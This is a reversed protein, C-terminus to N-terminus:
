LILCAALFTCVFGILVPALNKRALEIPSINCIAAVPIIGWPVITGGGVFIAAIQGLAALVPVSAKVATGFTRARDRICM